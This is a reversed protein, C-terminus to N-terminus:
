MNHHGCRKNCTPLLGAEEGCLSAGLNNGKSLYGLVFLGVQPLILSGPVTTEWTNRPSSPPAPCFHLAKPERGIM